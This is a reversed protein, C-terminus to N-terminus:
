TAAAAGASGAPPAGSELRVLLRGASILAYLGLCLSLPVVIGEQLIAVDTFSMLAQLAPPIEVVGTRGWESYQPAFYLAFVRLSLVPVAMVAVLAFWFLELSVWRRIAHRRFARALAAGLSSRPRNLWVGLVALQLASLAIEGIANLPLVWIGPHRPSVNYAISQFFSAFGYLLMLLVAIAGPWCPRWWRQLRERALTDPNLLFFPMSLMAVVAAAVPVFWWWMRLLGPLEPVFRGLWAAAGDSSGMMALPVSAMALAVLINLSRSGFSWRLAAIADGEPDCRRRLLSLAWMAAFALVGIALATVGLPLPVLMRVDEALGHHGRLTIVGPLSWTTAVIAAPWLLCWLAFGLAWAVPRLTSRGQPTM